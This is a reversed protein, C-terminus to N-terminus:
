LTGFDTVFDTKELFFVCCRFEAVFDTAFDDRKAQFDM